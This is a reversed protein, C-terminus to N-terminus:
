KVDEKIRPEAYYNRTPMEIANVKWLPKISWAKAIPLVIYTRQSLVTSIVRGPVVVVRTVYKKLALLFINLWNTNLLSRNLLM